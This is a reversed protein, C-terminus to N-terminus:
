LMSNTEVCYKSFANASACACKYLPKYPSFSTKLQPSPLKLDEYWLDIDCSSTNHFHNGRLIDLFNRSIIMQITTSTSLLSLYRKIKLDVYRLNLECASTVHINNGYLISFINLIMYVLISTLRSSRHGMTINAFWSMLPWPWLSSNAAIQVYSQTKM